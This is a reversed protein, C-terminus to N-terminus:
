NHVTHLVGEKPGNSIGRDILKMPYVRAGLSHSLLTQSQDLRLVCLNQQSTQHVFPKIRLLTGQRVGASEISTFNRTSIFVHVDADGSFCKMQAIVLQPLQCKSGHHLSVSLLVSVCMLVGSLSLILSKSLLNRSITLDFASKLHRALVTCETPLVSDAFM